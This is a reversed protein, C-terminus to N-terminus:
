LTPCRLNTPIVVDPALSLEITNMGKISSNGNIAKLKEEILNVKRQTENSDPQIM